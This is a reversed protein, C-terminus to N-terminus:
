RRVEIKAHESTHDRACRHRKNDLYCRVFGKENFIRGTRRKRNNPKANRRDACISDYKNETTTKLNDWGVEASFANTNQIRINTRNINHNDQNTQSHKKAYLHYNVLCSQSQCNSSSGM